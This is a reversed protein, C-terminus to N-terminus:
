NASDVHTQQSLVSWVVQAVVYTLTYAYVLDYVNHMDVQVKTLKTIHFFLHYHNM